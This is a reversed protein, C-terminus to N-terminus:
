VTSRYRGHMVAAAPNSDVWEWAPKLLGARALALRRAEMQSIVEM